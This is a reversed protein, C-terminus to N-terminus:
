RAGGRARADFRARQDKFRALVADFEVQQEKMWRALEADRAAQAEPSTSDVALGAATNSWPTGDVSEAGMCIARVNAIPVDLQPNFNIAEDYCGAAAGTATVTCGFLVGANRTGGGDTCECSASVAVRGSPCQAGVVGGGSATIRAFSIDAIAGGIDDKLATALDAEVITGNKINASTVTSAKIDAGLITGNAIRGSTVASPAIEIESVCRECNLNTATQARVAALPMCCLAAFALILTQKM